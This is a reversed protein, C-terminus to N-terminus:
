TMLRRLGEGLRAAVPGPAGSGVPKGDIETLAVAGSVGSTLILESARRWEVEEIHREQVENTEMVLARTVGPLLGQAPPTVLRDDIVAFVNATTAEGLRGDGDLLVATDAGRQEALRDARRYGVRALTKHEALRSEPMWWGRLSIASLGHTLAEQSMATPTVDVLITPGPTVTLRVRLLGPGAADVAGRVDREMASRDPMGPIELASFSAVLRDLHRDLLPVAGGQARMTEFIGEGARVAPDDISLCARAPDVREGNQVVIRLARRDGAPVPPGEGV